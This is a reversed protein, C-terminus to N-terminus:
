MVVDLEILTMFTIFLTEVFYPTMTIIYGAGIMFVIIIFITTLKSYKSIKRRPSM